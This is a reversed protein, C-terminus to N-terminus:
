CDVYGLQPQKTPLLPQSENTVATIFGKPTAFNDFVDSIVVEEAKM